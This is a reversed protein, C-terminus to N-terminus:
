DRSGSLPHIHDAVQLDQLWCKCVTHSALIFGEKTIKIKTQYKIVTVLFIYIYENKIEKATFKFMGFNFFIHVMLHIKM